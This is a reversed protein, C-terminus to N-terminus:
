GLLLLSRMSAIHRVVVVLDALLRQRLFVLGLAGSLWVSRSASM